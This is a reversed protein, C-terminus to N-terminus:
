FGPVSISPVSTPPALRPTPPRQTVSMRLRRSGVPSAEHVQSPTVASADHVHSPPPSDHREEHKKDEKKDKDSDSSDSHKGFRAEASSASFLLSAGLAACLLNKLDLM